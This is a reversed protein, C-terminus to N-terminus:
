TALDFAGSRPLTRKVVFWRGSKCMVVDFLWFLLLGKITNTHVSHDEPKRLNESHNVFDWHYWSIDVNIDDYLTCFCCLRARSFTRLFEVWRDCDENGTSGEETQFPVSHGMIAWFKILIQKWANRPANKGWTSPTGTFGTWLTWFIYSLPPCPTLFAQNHCSEILEGSYSLSQDFAAWLWANKVGEGMKAMCIRFGRSMLNVLVGTGPAFICGSIGPFLYKELKPCNHTM